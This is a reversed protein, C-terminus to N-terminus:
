PTSHTCSLRLIYEALAASQAATNAEAQSTDSFYTDAPTFVEDGAPGSWGPGKAAACDPTGSGQQANGYSFCNRAAIAAATAAALALVNAAAVSSASYAGAEVTASSPPGKTKGSQPHQACTVTATQQTNVYTCNLDSIAESTAAALAQADADAQSVQSCYEGAPVTVGAPSGSSGAPCFALYSQETNYYLVGTCRAPNTRRALEAAAAADAVSQSVYSFFAGAPVTVPTSINGACSPCVLNGNLPGASLYVVPDPPPPPVCDLGAYAKTRAATTAKKDADLQSIISEADACRTVPSGTHGVNCEASACAYSEYSM